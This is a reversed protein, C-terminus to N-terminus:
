FPTIGTVELNVNVRESAKVTINDPDIDGLVDFLLTGLMDLRGDNNTDEYGVFRLEYTGEELFNLTFEENGDVVASTVANKFPVNGLRESVNYAGKEYAYVVIVDGGQALDGDLDGEITGADEKTILRAVEDLDDDSVLNYDSTDGSTSYTIAKRLDFDIVVAEQSNNQDVTFSGSVNIVSDLTNNTNLAHKVGDNTQVYVGPGNGNQDNEFDMILTVDSYTGANLDAFGLAKVEGNRYDMLNFTLPGEFDTIPTGDVELGVITVFVGEVNPDDVPADTIEFRVNGNNDDDDDDNNCAAFLFLSAFLLMAGAFFMKSTKM